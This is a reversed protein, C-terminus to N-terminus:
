SGNSVKLPSPTTDKGKKIDGIVKNFVQNAKHVDKTLDIHKYWEETITISAHGLLESVTQMPLGNQLMFAGFGHRATHLTIWNYRPKTVDQIYGKSDDSRTEDKLLNTEPFRKGLEELAKHLYMNFSSKRGSYNYILPDDNQVEGPRDHIIDLLISHCPTFLDQKKGKKSENKIGQVETLEGEISVTRKVLDSYRRALLEKSRMGTFYLACYLDIFWRHHDPLSKSKEHIDILEDIKLYFREKSGSDLKAYGEFLDNKGIEPINLIKLDSATRNESLKRKIEKKKNSIATLIYTIRLTATSISRREVEQDVINQAIEFSFESTRLKKKYKEKEFEEVAMKSYKIMELTGKSRGKPNDIMEQILDTLMPDEGRELTELDNSLYQSIYAFFEEPLPLRSNEEKFEEILEYTVYDEMDLLKSRLRKEAPTTPKVNCKKYDWNERRVQIGTTGSKRTGLYRTRYFITAYRSSGKKIELKFYIKSM